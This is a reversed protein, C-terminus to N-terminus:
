QFRKIKRRFRHLQESPPSKRNLFPLSVKFATLLQAKFTFKYNSESVKTVIGRSEQFKWEDLRRDNFLKEINGQDLVILEQSSEQVIMRLNNHFDLLESMAFTTAIQFKFVDRAIAQASVPYDNRTAYIFGSDRFFSYVEISSYAEIEPLDILQFLAVGKHDPTLYIRTITNQPIEGPVKEEGVYFYGQKEFIEEEDLLTKPFYSPNSSERAFSTYIAPFIYGRFYTYIAIYLVFAFYIAVIAIVNNM